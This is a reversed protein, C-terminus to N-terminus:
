TVQPVGVTANENRSNRGPTSSNQEANFLGDEFRREDSGSIMM